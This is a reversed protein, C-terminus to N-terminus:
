NKGRAGQKQGDDGLVVGVLGGRRRQCRRGGHRANEVDAVEGDVGAGAVEGVLEFPVDWLAM